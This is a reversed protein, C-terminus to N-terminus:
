RIPKFENARRVHEVACGDRGTQQPGMPHRRTDPALQDNMSPGDGKHEFVLDIHRDLDLGAPGDHNRGIPQMVDLEVITGAKGHLKM